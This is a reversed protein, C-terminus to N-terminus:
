VVSRRWRPVVATPRGPTSPPTSPPPSTLSTSGDGTSSSPSPKPDAERVALTAAGEAPDAFRHLESAPVEVINRDRELLYIAAPWSFNDPAAATRTRCGSNVSSGHAHDLVAEALTDKHTEVGAFMRRWGLHEAATCLASM